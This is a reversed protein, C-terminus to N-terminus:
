GGREPRVEVVRVDSASPSVYYGYANSPGASAEPVERTHAREREVEVEFVYNHPRWGWHEAVVRFQLVRGYTDQLHQWKWRVLGIESLSGTSAYEYTREVVGRATQADTANHGRLHALFFIALGSIITLAFRLGRNRM